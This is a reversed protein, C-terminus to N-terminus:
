GCALDTLLDDLVLEEDIRVRVRDMEATLESDWSAVVPAGALERGLGAAALRRYDGAAYRWPRIPVRGALVNGIRLGGWDFDCHVRLESGSRALLRLLEVVATGPQGATCVLPAGVGALRDAAESVVVPNECVHVVRVAARPPDRVVQRLTLQVPQGAERWAGLARGTATVPDGPLGLCLVTSSLEDRLVGVSAWVERRWAAGSGAPVGGLVRAASLALTALPRDDDLAHPDGGGVQAAFRGLPLGGAPLRTLLTSLRACLVQATDPERALRRLLGTTVMRDRWAALEPGMAAVADLPAVARDWAQEVAASAAPRDAVAGTLAVVAEALGGPSAGSRRLVEEVAALPVTVASGPAPRRGLLRQVAARQQPSAGTLTVSGDLDRGRELRWRVRDVLWRLDDAGLLRALRDRNVEM